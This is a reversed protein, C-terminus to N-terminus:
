RFYVNQMLWDCYSKIGKEDIKCWLHISGPLIEIRGNELIVKIGEKGEYMYADQAHIKNGMIEIAKLKINERPIPFTRRFKDVVIGINETGYADIDYIKKSDPFHLQLNLNYRSGTFIALENIKQYAMNANKKLIKYLSDRNNDINARLEDILASFLIM